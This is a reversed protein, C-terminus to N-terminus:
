EEQRNVANERDIEKHRYSLQEFALNVSAQKPKRIPRHQQEKTTRVPPAYCYIQIKKSISHTFVYMCVYTGTYIYMYMYACYIRVCACVCVCVCM